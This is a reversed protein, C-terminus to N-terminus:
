NSIKVVISRKFDPLNISGAAVTGGKQWKDSWPLYFDIKTGKELGLLSLDLHIDKIKKAEKGELLEQRWGSKIDRCWILTTSKGKLIYIRFNQDELFLPTFDETIPDIGKIAEKFRGFHWWLNHRDIYHHWHWSQGPGAAGSFFPAFLLDHLLVGKTDKEYLKSPGAHHAEVAGVESVIVPRDHDYSLLERTADAALIDMAGKAVELEAGPDLYRHVQLIENDELAMYQKYISAKDKSDFSGLSQMVLQRPFAQKAEILMERTWDLVVKKTAKVSNIENWLEWGFVTPNTAYRNSFWHMRSLFLEKGEKTAFFQEMNELPGGYVKSYIPKDFPVSGEFPAPRDTLQRFNELCFKIKISYKSALNVLSDLLYDTKGLDFGSAKKQEVEWLPASLWIRTYNGGNEALKKFYKDYQGLAQDAETTIRSWCINPGIPIYPTGDEYELYNPNKASVQIHKETNTLPFRPNYDHAEQIMEFLEEAVLPYESALNRKEGIDDSLHYLEFRGDQIFYIAKWDDKRIAQRPNGPKFEWYLYDHKQQKKGLLAPLYSIGDSQKPPEIDIIEAMTPMLDWFASPHDNTTGPRIKGPWRAIFPIRIGGEYLDRKIGKLPGNSDFFLPNHGEGHPGNDSTFIVLTNKDIGSKKLQEMFMGVYKDLGAVNHAFDKEEQPWDRDSYDVEGPIPEIPAHVLSYAMYLFFPTGGKSQKDIFQLAKETILDEVHVSEAGKDNEDVIYLEGNKYLDPRYYTNPPKHFKSLAGFSHDFGRQHPCSNSFVGGLHWRGFLATTYNSNEKFMEAITRVDHPMAEVGQFMDRRNGRIPTHGTHMGTMLTSRSPACVPAGAYHDTFKMGEKAMRAINPTKLVKQGYPETDGYGLDDALIFIINPKENSQGKLTPICSLYNCIILVLLIKSKATRVLGHTNFRCRSLLSAVSM